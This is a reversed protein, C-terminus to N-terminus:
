LLEQVREAFFGNPWPQTFDGDESVPITAVTANTGSPQVYVVSLQNAQLETGAPAEGDTTERIRRLLRLILHESHTEILLTRRREGLIGAPIAIAELETLSPVVRIGKIIADGLAAQQRPHLHLEPQELAILSAGPDLLAMIVPVIQSLGVGVDQPQLLLNRNVDRLVIRTHDPLSAITEAFSETREALEPDAIIAAIGAPLHKFTERELRYGTDLRDELELWRSVEELLETPGHTLDYWAQLGSSWRSSGARDPYDLHRPPMVRLPGIHRFERLREALVHIPGLLLMSVLREFDDSEVLQTKTREGIPWEFRIPDRWSAPVGYPLKFPISGAQVAAGGAHAYVNALYSRLTESADPANKGNPRKSLELAVADASEPVNEEWHTPRPERSIIPHNWNLNEVTASRAGRTLVLSAFAVGNIEVHIAHLHPTGQTSIEYCVAAGSMREQIDLLETCEGDDSYRGVFLPLDGGRLALEANLRITPGMTRGHVFSRAGGLDLAAGGSWTHHADVNGELVVERLYHLAHTVSSKGGSNPGFLLTIPRLEIRQKEGFAKFNEIEIATLM